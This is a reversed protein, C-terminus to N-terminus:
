GLPGGPWRALNIVVLVIVLVTVGGWLMLEMDNGKLFGKYGSRHPNRGFSGKCIQEPLNSM